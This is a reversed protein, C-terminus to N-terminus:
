LRSGLLRKKNALIQGSKEQYAGWKVAYSETHHRTGIVRVGRFLERPLKHYEVNRLHEALAQLFEVPHAEIDHAFDHNVEILTRNSM